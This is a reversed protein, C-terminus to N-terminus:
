RGSASIIEDAGARAGCSDEVVRHGPWALAPICQFITLRFIRSSAPSATLAAGASASANTIGHHGGGIPPAAPPQGDGPPRDWSGQYTTFCSRPTTPTGHPTAVTRSLRVVYQDVLSHQHHPAVLSVRLVTTVHVATCPVSKPAESIAHSSSRVPCLM